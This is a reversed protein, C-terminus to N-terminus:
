YNNAFVYVGGNSRVHYIEANPEMGRVWGEIDFTVYPRLGEPIAEIEDLDFGMDGLLQEGFSELSDFEGLFDLQFQSEIDGWDQDDRREYDWWAAFADGHEEIGRALRHVRDLPENEDVRVSGFHEYDHIAYEEAIDGYRKTTPSDALMTEVQSQIEDLEDAANIWVGHLVGANYDSLSAVYIRPVEVPRQEPTTPAQEDHGSM